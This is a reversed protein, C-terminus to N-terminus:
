IPRFKIFLYNVVASIILVQKAILSRLEVSMLLFIEIQVDRQTFFFIVTSHQMHLPTNLARDFM